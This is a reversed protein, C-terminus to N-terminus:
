KMRSILQDKQIFQHYLAAGIHAFLLCLLIVWWVDTHLEHFIKAMSSDPTVMVPITFLGFVSIDRGAYMSMLMGSIPMALMSVYLGLHTLHAIATQWKPMIPAPPAKTMARNILRAITWLLFSFGLAKHFGIDRYVEATFWAILIMLAGLWHFIRVAISWKQFSLNTM